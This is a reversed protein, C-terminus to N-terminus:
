LTSYNCGNDITRANGYIIYKQENLDTQHQFEIFTSPYHSLLDLDSIRLWSSVYREEVEGM